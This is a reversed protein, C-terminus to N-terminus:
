AVNIQQKPQYVAACKKRESMKIQPLLNKETTHWELPIYNMIVQGNEDQCM